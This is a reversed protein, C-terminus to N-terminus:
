SGSATSTRESDQHLPTAKFTDSSCTNRELMDTCSVMENISHPMPVREGYLPKHSLQLTELNLMEPFELWISSPTQYFSLSLEKLTPAARHLMMMLHSSDFNDFIYDLCLTTLEPMHYPLGTKQLYLPSPHMQLTAIWFKRLKPANHLMMNVKDLNLGFKKADRIRISEAESQARKSLVNTLTKMSVGKCRNFDLHKWLHANLVQHRWDKSM